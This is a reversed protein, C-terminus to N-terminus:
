DSRPGPKGHGRRQLAAFETRLQQLVLRLRTSEVPLTRLREQEGPTLPHRQAAELLAQTDAKVRGIEAM